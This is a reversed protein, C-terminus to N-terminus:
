LVDCHSVAIPVLFDFSLRTYNVVCFLLKFFVNGTSPDCPIKGQSKIHFETTPLRKPSLPRMRFNFHKIPRTARFNFDKLLILFIIVMYWFQSKQFM